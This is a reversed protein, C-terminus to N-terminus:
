GKVAGVTLGKVFYKQFFPYAAIIPLVGVVAVAMRMGRSPLDAIVSTLNTQTARKMFEIDLLMRNLMNQISYLKSDTIFILGNFWDNWYGISVFLGVTALVPVSLPMVIRWFILFEGAGDMYASEIVEGPISSTFFTRMLIVFFGNVLLYPVILAALTNKIDFVTTYLMYTPVLGGNFLLTFFVYFALQRRIPFDRRSIPYALMATILLGAATGVVTVFVTIGYARLIQDSNRWLYEYATLNLEKPFFTYGSLAIERESTLSGAVLLLFPLLCFLASLTLAIHMLSRYFINKAM